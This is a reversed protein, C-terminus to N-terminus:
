KHHHLFPRGHGHYTLFAFIFRQFTRPLNRPGGEPMHRAELLPPSAGSHTTPFFAVGGSGAEEPAPKPTGEFYDCGSTGNPNCDGRVEREGVIGTGPGADNQARYSDHSIDLAAVILVISDETREKVHNRGPLNLSASSAESAHSNPKHGGM